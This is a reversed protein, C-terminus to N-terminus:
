ATLQILLDGKEQGTMTFKMHISGKKLTEQTILGCKRQGLTSRKICTQSYISQRIM